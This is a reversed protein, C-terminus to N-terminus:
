PLDLLTLDAVIRDALLIMLRGQADTAATQTAVTSGSAAYGTFGEVEGEGLLRGTADTLRWGAIGVLNYRQTDGQRTRAAAELAQDIGVSLRLDGGEGRGLRDALRARLTFGAITDPATM